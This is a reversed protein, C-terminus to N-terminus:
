RRNARNGNGKAKLLLVSPKDEPFEDGDISAKGDSGGMFYIQAHGASKKDESPSLIFDVHRDSGLVTNGNLDVLDFMVGANGASDPIAEFMVSDFGQLDIISKGNIPRVALKGKDTSTVTVKGVLPGKGFMMRLPIGSGNVLYAQGNALAATAMTLSCVVLQMGHKIRM